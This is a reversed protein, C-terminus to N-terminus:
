EINDSKALNHRSCLLQVNKADDSRGGKSVPIIHDFHLDRTSGCIVCRGGDRNWVIARVKAPIIRSVPKEKQERGANRFQRFKFKFVTRRDNTERWADVLHYVGLDMWLGGGVKKYVQVPEPPRKGQRYRDAAKYFLGNPTPSGNAFFEPQDVLQPFPNRGSRLADHGQYILIAGQEDMLDDYKSSARNSCLIVSHDPRVRYNMGRQFYVGERVCMAQFSVAKCHPM